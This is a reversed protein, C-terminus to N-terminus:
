VGLTRDLARDEADLRAMEDEFSSERTLLKTDSVSAGNLANAVRYAVFGVGGVAALIVGWHMFWTLLHVVYIVGATAIVTKLVIWLKSQQEENKRAM